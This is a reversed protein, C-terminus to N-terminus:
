PVSGRRDQQLGAVVGSLVGLDFLHVLALRPRGLDAVRKRGASDDDEDRARVASLHTSQSSTSWTAYLLFPPHQAAPQQGPQQLLFSCVPCFCFQQADCAPAQPRSATGPASLAKERRLAGYEELRQRRAEQKNSTREQPEHNPYFASCSSYFAQSAVETYHPRMTRQAGRARIYTCTREGDVTHRDATHVLGVHNGRRGLHTAAAAHRFIDHMWARRPM